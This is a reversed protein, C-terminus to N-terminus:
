KEKKVIREEIKKWKRAWGETWLKGEELDEITDSWVWQEFACMEAM